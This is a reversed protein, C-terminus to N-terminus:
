NGWQWKQEPDKKKRPSSANKRERGQRVREIPRIDASPVLSSFQDALGLASMVRIFTDLTVGKGNEMRSITRQSVGAMEAITRQNINKMLRVAMVRKCIDLEIRQSQSKSLIQSM